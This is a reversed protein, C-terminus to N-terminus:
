RRRQHNHFGTVMSLRCVDKEGRVEVHIKEKPVNWHNELYHMVDGQLKKRNAEQDKEKAIDGSKGVNIEVPEISRDTQSAPFTPVYVM